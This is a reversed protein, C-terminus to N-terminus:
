LILVSKLKRGLIRLVMSSINSTLTSSWLGYTSKHHAIKFCTMGKFQPIQFIYNNSNVPVCHYHQRCSENTCTVIHRVSWTGKEESRNVTDKNASAKRFQRELNCVCCMLKVKSPISQPLYGAIIMSTRNSLQQASVFDVVSEDRFRLLEEALGWRFKANDLKFRETKTATSMNWAQRGNIIVFNFIGMLGMRYWKRFLALSAFSGGIKKDKDMNDVGGMFNDSSYRKLAEPIQFDVKNAGVRRQVTSMGFVGLTSIFLVVKNDNWQGFLV